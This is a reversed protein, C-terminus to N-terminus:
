AQELMSKYLELTQKSIKNWDYSKVFELANKRLKDRLIEDDLVRVIRDAIGRVDEPDVLLGTVEDFVIDLIGQVNSAIVPTGCAMAELFVIGLGETISTRIFVDAEAILRPVENHEVRGMFVARDKLKLEDVLNELKERSPGDGVLILKADEKQVVYPMARIVYEIGNKPSLRSVNIIVKQCGFKSKLDIGERPSFKRLDVGNPIITIKGANIGFFRQISESLANSICHIHNANKLASNLLPKILKLEKLEPYDMLEDGQLTVIYPVGSFKKVM